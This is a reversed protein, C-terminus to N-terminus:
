NKIYNFFDQTSKLQNFDNITDKFFRNYEKDKMKILVDKLIQDFNEFFSTNSQILPILEKTSNMMISDLIKWAFYSISNPKPAYFHSAHYSYRDEGHKVDKCDFFSGYLSGRHNLYWPSIKDEWISYLWSFGGAPSLPFFVFPLIFIKQCQEATLYDNNNIYFRISSQIQDSLERARDIPLYPSKDIINVSNFNENFHYSNYILIHYVKKSIKKSLSHCIEKVTEKDKIGIENYILSPIKKNLLNILVVMELKNLKELGNQINTFVQSIELPLTLPDGIDRYGETRCLYKKYEDSDFKVRKSIWGCQPPLDKRGFLPNPISESQNTMHSEESARSSIAPISNKFLQIDDVLYNIKDFDLLLTEITM